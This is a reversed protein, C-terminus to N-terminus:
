GRISGGFFSEGFETFLVTFTLKAFAGVALDEASAGEEAYLHLLRLPASQRVERFAQLFSLLPLMGAEAPRPALYLVGDPLRRSEELDRLLTAFDEPRSPDIM